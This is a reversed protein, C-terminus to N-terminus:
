VAEMLKVLKLCLPMIILSFGFIVLGSGITAAGYIADSFLEGVGAGITAVGSILVAFPAVCLGVTVVTMAVIVVFIPVAFLVCLLVFVWTYDERKKPAPAPAYQAPNPAPAPPPPPAFNQNGGHYTGNEPYGGRQGYPQNVANEALIRQAADYPAGFENTIERESYGADRRDAYAEAYYDLVRIREQESVCLLNKKLEDRWENYTM